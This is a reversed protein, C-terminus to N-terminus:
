SCKKSESLIISKDYELDFLDGKRKTAFRLFVNLCFEAQIFFLRFREKMLNIPNLKLIYTNSIIHKSLSSNTVIPDLSLM